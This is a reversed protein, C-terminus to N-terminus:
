IEHWISPFHFLTLSYHFTLKVEVVVIAPLLLITILLRRPLFHPPTNVNKFRKIMVLWRLHQLTSAFNFNEFEKFVM